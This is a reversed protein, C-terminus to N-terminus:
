LLYCTPQNSHMHFTPFNSLSFCGDLYSPVGLKRLPLSGPARGCPWKKWQALQMKTKMLDLATPDPTDPCKLILVIGGCKAFSISQRLLDWGSYVSVAPGDVRHGRSGRGARQWESELVEKGAVRRM